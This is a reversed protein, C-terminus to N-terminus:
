MYMCSHIHTPVCMCVYVCTLALLRHMSMIFAHPFIYKTQRHIHLIYTPLYTHHIYTLLWAYIHIHIYAYAYLIYKHMCLHMFVFNIGPLMDKFCPICLQYYIDFFLHTQWLFSNTLTMECKNSILITHLYVMHTFNSLSGTYILFVFTGALCVIYLTANIHFFFYPKRHSTYIFKLLFKMPMEFVFIVMLCPINWRDYIHHFLYPKCIHCIQFDSLVEHANTNKYTCM